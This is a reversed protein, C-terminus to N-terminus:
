PREADGPVRVGRAVALVQLRTADRNGEDIVLVEESLQRCLGFHGADCARQAGDLLERVRQELAEVEEPTPAAAPPEAQMDRAVPARVERAPVLPPEDVPDTSRGAVTVLVLALAVVTWFTSAWATVVRPDSRRRQLTAGREIASAERAALIAAAVWPVLLPSLLAYPLGRRPEGLYAFGGGPSLLGWMIARRRTPLPPREAAESTHLVFKDGVSLVPVDAPQNATSEPAPPVLVEPGFAATDAGALEVNLESAPPSVEASRAPRSAPEEEHSRHALRERLSAGLVEDWVTASGAAPIELTRHGARAADADDAVEPALDVWPTRGVVTRGQPEREGSGDDLARWGPTQTRSPVGAGASDGDIRGTLERLSRRGARSTCRASVGLSSLKRVLEEAEALGVVTAVPTGPVDLVSQVRPVPVALTRAVAEALAARSSSWADADVHIDYPTTDSM